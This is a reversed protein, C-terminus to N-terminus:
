KVTGTAAGQPDTTLHTNMDPVTASLAIGTAADTGTVAQDTMLPAYTGRQDATPTITVECAAGIADTTVGPWAPVDGVNWTMTRTTPDYLPADGFPNAAKGTYTVNAPLKGTIRVNNLTGTTNSVNWFIWLTTTKGVTPPLPGRGLQDGTDSWYRAGATMGLTSAVKINWAPSSITMASDNDLKGAINAHVALQVDTSNKLAEPLKSDLNATIKVNGTAGPKLDGLAARDINKITLGPDATASVTAGNLAHDGTNKYTVNITVTDGLRAGSAGDLSINIAPDALSVTKSSQGQSLTDSLSRVATEVAFDATDAGGATMTGSWSIKGESGKGLTGVFWSGSKLEPKSNNMVFNQPWTPIITVNDIPSNGHNYYRIDGSVVQGVVMSDPMEFEAGVSSNAIKARAAAIKKGEKGTSDKYTVNASPKLTQGVNGSLTGVIRVMAESHAGIEGFSVTSSARAYSLSSREFKIQPPLKFVANVDDIPDNENNTVTLNLVIEGGSVLANPTATLTAQVAEVPKYILGFYIAVAAILAGLAVLGMDFAFVHKPRKFKGEYKDKYLDALPETLLNRAPQTMINLTGIFVGGRKAADRIDTELERGVAEAKEIIEGEIPQIEKNDSM